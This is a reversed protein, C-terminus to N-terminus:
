EAHYDPLGLIAAVKDDAVNLFVDRGEDFEVKIEHSGKVPFPSPAVSGKEFVVRLSLVNHSALPGLRGAWFEQEQPGFPVVGPALIPLSTMIGVIFLSPVALRNKLLRTWADRWLSRPKGLGERATQLEASNM